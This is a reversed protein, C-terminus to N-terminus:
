GHDVGLLMALRRCAEGQNIGELFAVLSVADGGKDGTAFDAWKGTRMNIKFSGYRRDARLPNLAVWEDGEMRGQPLWERVLRPLHPLAARNVSQFNLTHRM